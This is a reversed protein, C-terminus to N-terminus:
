LASMTPYYSRSTELHLPRCDRPPQFTDSSSPWNHGFVPLQFGLNSDSRRQPEQKISTARRSFPDLKGPSTAIYSFPPEQLINSAGRSSSYMAPTSQPPTSTMGNEYVDSKYFHYSHGDTIRHGSGERALDSEPLGDGFATCSSRLSSSASSPLSHASASHATGTHHAQYIGGGMRSSYSSGSLGGHPGTPGGSDRPSSGYDGSSGGGPGMSTSGRREDQYHGPSRGRVVMQASVRHAVKIWETETSSGRYVKAYLEVVIHFYQQAARRKGNNATAKKFQIREFNAVNNSEQLNSSYMPDYDPQGTGFAAPGTFMGLNGTPNPRLEKKDPASMPGKDRKPTHQVLEIPKGDEGDVKAAICMAFANVREPASGSRNVRVQDPETDAESRLSYSCAVSFYNRRYCTWDQDARFFGKDIKAHIDPQVAAGRDDSLSIFAKTPDFPPVSHGPVGLQPGTDVQMPSAFSYQHTSSPSDRGLGSDLSRPMASLPSHPSPPLHFSDGPTSFNLRSIHPISPSYDNRLVQGLPPPVPSPNGSNRSPPPM